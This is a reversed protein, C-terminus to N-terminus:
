HVADVTMTSFITQEFTSDSAFILYRKKETLFFIHYINLFSDSPVSNNTAIVTAGHIMETSRIPQLGSTKAADFLADPSEAAKASNDKVIFMPCNRKASACAASAYFAPMPDTPAPLVWEPPVSLTFGLVTNYYLVGGTKQDIVPSSKGCAQLLLLGTFVALISFRRFMSPTYAIPM